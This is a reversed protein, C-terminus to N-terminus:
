TSPPLPQAAIRQLLRDKVDPWESDLISYWMTHRTTGDPMLMHNRFTGEFKAGLKLINRQSRLNEHHTKLAVRRLGLTEFAHTLQLLKVRPNVGSGRHPATLWSFGIEGTRHLPELDFLRSSGVLEGTALRTVWVQANDRSNAMVSIGAWADVDGVTEIRLPMYRWISPEVAIAQLAPIHQEAIPELRIGFGELTPTPSM